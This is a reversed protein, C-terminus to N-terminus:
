KISKNFAQAVVSNLLKCIAVDSYHEEVFLKLSPQAFGNVLAKKISLGIDDVNKPNVLIARDGFYEKPAGINTLVIECGYAAAELAVMGVGEVLSPLAFVKARSYLDLLKEENVEGEYVINKAGGILDELWKKGKDGSLYGALRLEFGYKKAAEILRPVNKNKAELRSVHLCFNKKSPFFKIQPVRFNLPVTFIRDQPIELTYNTYHREQESRVLFIKCYKSALWLDHYRSSLGLTKQFGWYKVFFKYIYDPVSPDIIPALVINPNESAIDRAVNRVGASYSFIIVADFDKWVPVDWSNVLVVRHGLKELGKKWMLAQMRVGGNASIATEPYVFAYNM